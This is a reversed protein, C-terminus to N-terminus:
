KRDNYVITKGKETAMQGRGTINVIVLMYRLTKGHATKGLNNLGRLLNQVSSRQTHYPTSKNNRERNVPHGNVPHGNVTRMLNYRTHSVCFWNPSGRMQLIIEM